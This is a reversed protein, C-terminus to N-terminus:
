VELPDRAKLLVTVHRTAASGNSVLPEGVVDWDRGGWSIRAFAGSPWTRGKFRYVTVTDQGEAVSEDARVPQVRGHVELPTPGPVLVVNGDGDTDEVEVYVNVVDRGDDLLSVLV